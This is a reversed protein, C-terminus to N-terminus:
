GSCSARRRRGDRRVPRGGRALVPSDPRGAGDVRGGLGGMRRGPGPGAQRELGRDGRGREVGPGAGVVPTAFPGMNKRNSTFHILPIVAFSLQLSLIVQSLILLRQTAQEGTLSIVVVAPILAILRTILRRLWPALRLHLYGEMVIQGALTGTLTSSQGACLLAIAFLIPAGRGSSRRSAAPVGGRDHRGGHRAPSLGGRELDPDRRQRFVGRQARDGRRDLLLPMGDGQERADSGIRRTQVLASHLYLNHPMVTAGLIGIAVFLAGPPLSPRLGSIIGALDPKALFIQVLFCGGITAVLALIVAEM